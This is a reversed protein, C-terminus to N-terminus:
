GNAVGVRKFDIVWVWPNAQWSADGYLDRWVHAFHEAPTASYGYGPISGHGGSSGEARADDDSISQLREVRVGAIELVLRCAWRPMHISPRWRIGGTSRDFGERYIAAEHIDKPNVAQEVGISARYATAPVFAHTERVWLREGPAGHPCVGALCPAPADLSVRRQLRDGPRAVYFGSRFSRDAVPAPTVVRRTQTKRGDLIARVMSASFLM